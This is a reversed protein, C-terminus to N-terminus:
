GCRTKWETLSRCATLRLGGRRFHNQRNTIWICTPWSKGAAEYGCTMWAERHRPSGASREGAQDSGLRGQGPCELGDSSWSPLRWELGTVTAGTLAGLWSAMM